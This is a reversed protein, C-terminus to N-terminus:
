KFTDKIKQIKKENFCSLQRSEYDFQIDLAELLEQKLDNFNSNDFLDNILTIIDLYISHLLNNSFLSGNSKKLMETLKNTFNNYAEEKTM